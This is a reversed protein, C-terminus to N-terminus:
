KVSPLLATLILVRGSERKVGGDAMRGRGSRGRDRNTVQGAVAIEVHDDRAIGADNGDEEAVAAATEGPRRVEGGAIMRARDDEAVEGAVPM